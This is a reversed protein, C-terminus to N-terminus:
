EHRRPKGAVASVDRAAGAGNGSVSFRPVLGRAVNIRFWQPGLVRAVREARTDHTGNLSRRAQM